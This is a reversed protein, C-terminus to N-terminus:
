NIERLKELEEATFFASVKKWEKKVAEYTSLGRRSDEDYGYSSCFDEHTGPDDKTMPTLVDYPTLYLSLSKNRWSGWFDFTWSKKSCKIKIRYHDGHVTFCATCSGPPLLSEKSARWRPCKTGVIQISLRIGTQAMFDRASKEYPSSSRDVLARNREMSNQNLTQKNM